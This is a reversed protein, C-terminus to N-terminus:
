FPGRFQLQCALKAHEPDPQWAKGYGRVMTHIAQAITSPNPYVQTELWPSTPCTTPAFGIRKVAITPGPGAMELVRAVIEASAGCCTWANDVVVLRKTRRASALITDADLPILSIPDIVEAHIGVDALLEQAECEVLRFDSKPPLM